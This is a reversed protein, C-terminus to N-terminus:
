DGSSLVILKVTQQFDAQRINVFYLGPARGRLDISSSTDFEENLILKGQADRVALDALGTRALEIRFFGDGPNPWLRVTQNASATPPNEAGALGQPTDPDHFLWLGNSIELVYCQSSFAGNFGYIRAYYTGATLNATIFESTNGSNLSNAIVLGSSNLLELDYDAGLNFLDLYLLGSGATFRWYDVDTANGIQSLTYSNVVKLPAGSTTNNAPENGNLCTGLSVSTAVRLTYCQTANFVGNFGVVTAFYTGSTLLLEIYEGTTGANESSTIINGLTNVLQLDYDAPLNNLTLIAVQNGSITFKWHDIDGSFGIQSLKNTGTTLTPATSLANNAPENDNSCGTASTGAQVVTATRTFGGGTVTVTATRASSSTNATFSATITGNNTGGSPSLTLWTQNDSATWTVNGSVSFTTNGATAAVNQTAPSLTLTTASAGEQVITVTRTIGGGIVTITATRVSTSTNATLNATITGNNTGSSPSLTLWTQNDSATWSVNASVSVSTSGAAAAVSQTAPTVVLMNPVSGAQVVTVMQTIGGGTITITATRSTTGSNASFSANLIGGNAGSTPSVTLWAQNDSVSWTVNSNINFTTSGSTAAVSQSAPTVNLTGGAAGEQVVTVTQSQSGGSVTITATRASSGTNATFTATIMGNNAGSAPSLTLWSQNDTATWTVSSSVSFTTSGATAGVNQTAPTVTLASASSGFLDSEWLGRGFTAARIKGTSTRIELENVITNPLGTNFLVWDSMSANRFYVGIDMGVYVGEDTGAQYLICNAPLNPLSGSFNTWTSGGTTSRFVKNGAEYNGMTVYIRNANAPDVAIYTINAASVPLNGTVNTWSSGGNTTRFITGSNATYITNANSPAVVLSTLKEQPSLNSSIAVWSNGQNTSRYVDNYGALITAPSSPSLVFPTVWDGEPNGPINDQINVWTSGSNTSRSIEGYYSETYLISANTPHIACEMGDGTALADVWVGSANRLKTSNDQLGCLIKNDAQSVGIRYLQSNVLTNSIDFWSTGSNTSRYIGGDNGQFLTTNNQWVLCHKDAHVIQAGPPLQFGTWYNVIAWTSGGNTSKWLNVGGIYMVNANTPSITICLDYWGQGKTGSGDGSSSLINPSSSRLVYSSGSNSSAYLGNFAGESNSSVLAVFNPNAPTVALAIRISNAISGSIAWNTGTNTSQYVTNRSAAYVTAPAGPKFKVDWMNDDIVETWNSGGNTTLYLGSSTAALLTNPSTPHIVLQRIYAFSTVDASLGTPTWSVGGNTSKLVGISNTYRGFADGTALYLINPNSPDVVIATIGLVPLNDTQATWTVGGNITKWLGGAPTGLWIISSNTPHFAICNVRGIGNYGSATISPGLSTWNGSTTSLAEPHNTLYREWEVQNINAQPFDGNPLIRDRWYYEWRKFQKWGQGKGPTLGRWYDQFQQQIVFYNNSEDIPWRQASLGIPLLAIWLLALYSIRFKLPQKM